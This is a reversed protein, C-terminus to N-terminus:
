GGVYTPVYSNEELLDIWSAVVSINSPICEEAKLIGSIVTAPIDEDEKCKLGAKIYAPTKTKLIAKWSQCLRRPDYAGLMIMCFKRLGKSRIHLIAKRVKRATKIEELTIDM